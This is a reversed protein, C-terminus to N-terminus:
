FSFTRHPKPFAAVQVWPTSSLCVGRWSFDSFPETRIRIQVYSENHRKSRKQLTVLRGLGRSSRLVLKPECRTYSLNSAQRGFLRLGQFIWAKASKLAIEM